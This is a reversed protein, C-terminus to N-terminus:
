THSLHHTCLLNPVSGYAFYESLEECLRHALNRKGCGQPGTLVLMPYPTDASPMTSNPSLCVCVCTSVPCRNRFWKVPVNDRLQAPTVHILVMQACAEETLAVRGSTVFSLRTPSTSTRPLVAFESYSWCNIQQRHIYKSFRQHKSENREKLSHVIRADSVRCSCRQM